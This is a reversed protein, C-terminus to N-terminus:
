PLHLPCGPGPQEPARDTKAKKIAQILDNFGISKDGSGILPFNEFRNNPSREKITQDLNLYLVSNSEVLVQKDDGISSVVAAIIVFFFLCLLVISLVFGVVTALVYKFFQRM